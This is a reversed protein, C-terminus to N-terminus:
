ISFVSTMTTTSILVPLAATVLIWLGVVRVAGLSLSATCILRILLIPWTRPSSCIAGIRVSATGTILLLLLINGSLGLLFWRPLGQWVLNVVVLLLGGCVRIM